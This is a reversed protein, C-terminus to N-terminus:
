IETAFLLHKMIQLSDGDVRYQVIDKKAKYMMWGQKLM